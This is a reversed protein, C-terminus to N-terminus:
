FRVRDCISQIFSLRRIKAIWDTPIEKYMIGALSGTIASIVTTAGGLNVAQLITKRFGGGRACCWIAAELAHVIYSSSQIYTEPLRLIELSWIRGLEPRKYPDPIMQIAKKLADEFRLGALLNKVLFVYMLCCAHSLINNHGHGNLLHIYELAEMDDSFPIFAIPLMYILSSNNTSIQEMSSRNWKLSLLNGLQKTNKFAGFFWRCGHNTYKGFWSFSRVNREWRRHMKVLSDQTVADLSCLMLSTVPGWSGLPLIFHADQLRSARMDTCKFTGRKKRDYPIAVIDGIIFGVVARVLNFHVKM